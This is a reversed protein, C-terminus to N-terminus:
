VYASYRPYKGCTDLPVKSSVIVRRLPPFAVEDRDLQHLTHRTPFPNISTNLYYYPNFTMEGIKIEAM